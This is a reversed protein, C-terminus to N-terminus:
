SHQIQNTPQLNLWVHLLQLSVHLVVFISVICLRFDFVESFNLVCDVIVEGFSLYISKLLGM